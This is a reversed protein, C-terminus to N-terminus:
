IIYILIIFLDWSNVEINIIMKYGIKVKNLKLSENCLFINYNVYIKNVNGFSYIIFVLNDNM